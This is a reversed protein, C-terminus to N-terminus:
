TRYVQYIRDTSQDWNKLDSLLIKHKTSSTCTCLYIWTVPISGQTLSPYWESFRVMSLRGVMTQTTPQHYEGPSPDDIIRPQRYQFFVTLNSNDISESVQYLSQGYSTQDHIHFIYWGHPDRQPDFQPRWTSWLTNPILNYIGGPGTMGSLLKQLHRAPLLLLWLWLETNPM